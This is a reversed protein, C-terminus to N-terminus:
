EVGVKKLKEFVLFYSHYVRAHQQKGNKNVPMRHKAALIFLDKIRFGERQAWQIVNYHTCFLKHNHIIDQCKVVLIGKKKLCRYAEKITGKYHEELEDYSWYGSFRKAMISNHDRGKDIYTLFPPDFVINSVSEYVLPLNTSCAKIVGDVQPSIDFKHTPKKDKYFKGNGYTVDCEIGGTHLNIIADLIEQQDFSVSKYIM